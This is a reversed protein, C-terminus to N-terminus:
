HAESITNCTRTAKWHSGYGTPMRNWSPRRKPRIEMSSSRPLQAATPPIMYEVARMGNAEGLAGLTVPNFGFLHARHFRHHPATARSEVNPVEVILKGGASLWSRLLGLASRPDGLHELVHFMTIAAFPAGAPPPNELPRAEIELDLRERAFEACAVDPEMGRADYGLSKLIYPFEGVGSGIDLLRGSTPLLHRLGEVRNRAGLTSKYM